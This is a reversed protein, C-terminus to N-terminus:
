DKFSFLLYHSFIANGAEVISNVITISILQLLTSQELAASESQEYRSVQGVEKNEKLTDSKSTHKIIFRLQLGFFSNNLPFIPAKKSHLLLVIIELIYESRM